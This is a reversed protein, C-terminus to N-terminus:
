MQAQGGLFPHQTTPYPHLYSYGYPYCQQVGPTNSSEPSKWANKHFYTGM